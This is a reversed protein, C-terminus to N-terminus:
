EQESLIAFLDRMGQRYALFECIGMTDCIAAHYEEVLQIEDKSFRQMLCEMLEEEKKIKKNYGANRSYIKGMQESIDTQFMEPLQEKKM